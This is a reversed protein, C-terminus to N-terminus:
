PAESTKEDEGAAGVAVLDVVEVPRPVPVPVHVHVHVHVPDSVAGVVVIDV